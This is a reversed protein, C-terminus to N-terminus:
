CLHVQLLQGVAAQAVGTASLLGGKGSSGPVRNAQLEVLMQLQKAMSNEIRALRGGQESDTSEDSSAEDYVNM